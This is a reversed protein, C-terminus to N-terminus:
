QATETAWVRVKSRKGNEYERRIPFRDKYRSMNTLAGEIQKTSLNLGAAMQAKSCGPNEKIYDFVAKTQSVRQRDIKKEPVIKFLRMPRGTSPNKGMTAKIANRGEMRSLLSSISKSQRDFHAAIDQVSCNPNQAIFDYIKHEAIPGRAQQSPPRERHHRKAIEKADAKMAAILEDETMQIRKTPQAPPMPIRTQSILM